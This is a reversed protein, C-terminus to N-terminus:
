NIVFNQTASADSENKAADFAKLFWYYTKSAELTIESPSTVQDKTVLQTLAEDEYIYISDIEATGEVAERTWSFSVLTETLTAENAPTTPAPNNPKMTDITLSRSTYLSNQTANEARVQWKTTGEEFTFSISLESTTEEQLIDDNADLLQVRYIDADIVEEWSLTTEPTNSVLENEPSTLLVERAAFDTPEVVTFAAQVYSTSTGSNQGRVRWEYRNKVLETRFSTGSVVTDEIIQFADEFTPRAIQLRYSTAQDVADWSFNISTNEIVAKDTPALINITSETLNEEIFPEECGLFLITLLATYLSYKKM